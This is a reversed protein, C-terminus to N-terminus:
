LAIDAKRALDQLAQGAGEFDYDTLRSNVVELCLKEEPTHMLPILATLSDESGVPDHEWLNLFLKKIFRSIKEREAIATTDLPPEGSEPPDQVSDPVPIELPDSDQEFADSEPTRRGTAKMFEEAAARAATLRDELGAFLSELGSTRGNRIAQELEFAREALLKASINGAVGKLTHAKRHAEEVQGDALAQRMEPVADRYTELFISLLRVYLAQNGDLRRM